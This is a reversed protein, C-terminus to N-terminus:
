GGSPLNLFRIYYIAAVILICFHLAVMAKFPRPRSQALTAIAHVVLVTIAFYGAFDSPQSPFSIVLSLAFMTLLPTALAAILQEPFKADSDPTFLVVLAAVLWVGLYTRLRRSFSVREDSPLDFVTHDTAAENM